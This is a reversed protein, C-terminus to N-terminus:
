SRFLLSKQANKGMEFVRGFRLCPNGFGIKKEKKSIGYFPLLPSPPCM